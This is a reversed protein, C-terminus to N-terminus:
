GALMREVRYTLAECALDESVNLPLRQRTDEILEVAARLARADGGGGVVSDAELLAMRDSNRVLDRAGWALSALDLLWTEALTLALDLAGTEVRRRGRKVRDGWEGEVRRQEKKPYMAIEAAARESLENSIREGRAKVADLLGTWPATATAEGALSRRVLEQARERLLAGEPTALEHAVGADGLSLRAYAIATEGSVGASVLDEATEQVSPADFRVVQCRSRITPLVEALRDTILIMHVFSAPEELTKLMRNAAQDGLQDASEIVFVRRTSEFPTRSAAAVVPGDIDSVLIEHAGSPVVWTLDPHTGALARAHASAEDAAGQALLTAAIERALERKGSGGPGHFLYAHSPRGGRELVPALVANANPHRELEKVM